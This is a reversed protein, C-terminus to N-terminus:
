IIMKQLTKGLLRLDRVNGLPMFYDVYPLATSMGRCIPQYDKTGMLPNLWIVKYAKNKLYAMQTDLLSNEGRDWGDSFIVVITRGSLMRKGYIQNFERLCHGIRTGGGWDCVLKPLGSLTVACDGRDFHHTWRSLSTSFFFIETHRDLRKLAHVFQLLMITYVDMSGSVDCFFLVRRKKLKKKKFELLLLEGGFQMNKRIIRRLDIVKGRLTYRTRRSVRNKLPLLWKKISEYFARSESFEDLECTQNLAEPSYCALWDRLEDKFRSKGIKQDPDKKYADSAVEAETEADGSMGCLRKQGRLVHSYWFSLFLTDFMQIDERRHVLNLRLLDQFQEPNSIDIYDIGRIADMISPLSVTIGSERLLRCFRVINADLGEDSPDTIETTQDLM